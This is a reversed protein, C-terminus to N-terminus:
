ETRWIRIGSGEARTTFTMDHRKGYAYASLRANVEETFFSDKVKMSAFPYKAKRGRGVPPAVPVNSQIKIPNSM